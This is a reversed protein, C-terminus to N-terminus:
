TLDRDHLIQWKTHSVNIHDRLEGVSGYTPTKGSSVCLVCGFGDEHHSKGLFRPSLKFGEKLVTAKWCKTHDGYWEYGCRCAHHQPIAKRPNIQYKLAEPCFMSFVSNDVQWGPSTMSSYTSHRNHSILNPTPPPSPPESQSYPSKLSTTSSTIHTDESVDTHVSGDDDAPKVTSDDSMMSSRRSQQYARSPLTRPLLRGVAVRKYQDALAALCSVRVDESARVM